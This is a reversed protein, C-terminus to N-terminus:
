VSSSSSSLRHRGRAQRGGSPVACAAHHLLKCQWLGVSETHAQLLLLLLPPLRLVWLVSNPILVTHPHACACVCAICAVASWCHLVSLVGCLSCMSTQLWTPMHVAPLRGYRPCCQMWNLWCRSLLHCSSHCLNMMSCFPVAECCSPQWRKQIAAASPSV